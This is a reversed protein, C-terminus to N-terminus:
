GDGGGVCVKIGLVNVVCVPSATVVPATTSPSPRPAPDSSPSPAPAPPSSPGQHAAPSSRAPQPQPPSPSQEAVLHAGNGPQPSLTAVAGPRTKRPAPRSGAPHGAARGGAAGPPLGRTAGPGKLVLGEVAMGGVVVATLTASLVTKHM